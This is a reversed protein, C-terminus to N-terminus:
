KNQERSFFAAAFAGPGAHTGITSGVLTAPLRGRAEAWLEVSSQLYDRLPTEDKGSYALMYPLSFDVGGKELIIENFVAVSKKAGRPKAAVKAEGDEVCIIPKVNLVTGAMAATKSLRGGRLLYELTDVRAVLCVRKKASELDRAIDRASMGKRALKLAYEILIRQGITVNESDVVWVRGEYEAAALEASQVTGSFKGSVTIVLADDGAAVVEAFLEAFGLPSIRGTTPLKSCVALRDYFEESTITVGDLFEEGDIMTVLPVVIIGMQAAEHPKIDCASDCIIRVAM